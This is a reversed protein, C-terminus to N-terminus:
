DGFFKKIKLIQAPTLSAMDPDRRQFIVVPGLIVENLLVFNPALGLRNGEENCFLAIKDAILTLDVMEFYGGVIESIAKVGEDQGIELDAEEPPKGPHKIIVRINNM